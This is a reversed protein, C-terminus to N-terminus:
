RLANHQFSNFPVSLAFCARETEDETVSTSFCWPTAPTFSSLASIPPIVRTLRASLIVNAKRRNYCFYFLFCFLVSFLWALLGVFWCVFFVHSTVRPTIDRSLNQVLIAKNKLQTVAVPIRSSM